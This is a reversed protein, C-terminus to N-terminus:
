LFLLLLNSLGFITVILTLVVLFIKMPLRTTKWKYRIFIYLWYPIIICTIWQFTDVLYIGLLNGAQKLGLDGSIVNIVTVLLYFALVWVFFKYAILYLVGIRTDVQIGEAIPDINNINEKNSIPKIKDKIFNITTIVFLTITSLLLATITNWYLDLGLQFSGYFLQYLTSIGYIVFWARLIKEFRTIKKSRIQDIISNHTEISKLDIAVQHDSQNEEIDTQLLTEDNLTVSGLDENPIVFENKIELDHKCYRCFIAEEQILEACYPCKKM